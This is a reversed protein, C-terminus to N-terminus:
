SAPEFGADRLAQRGEDSNLTEVFRRVSPREARSSRLAFDYFEKAIAIFGLDSARSVPEITVGWDARQQAVAVAVANHSRPQNSYGAPHAGKLLGDILIRTGSGSNRNVMLCEPDALAAQLADELSKGEFRVDGKRFVLGQMRRWGPILTLDDGLFPSNYRGTRADLLHIPALDCEGRKVAQLGGLSGIAISRAAINDRVLLSLIRDLGTCHSGIVVLDPLQLNPSFLSVDGTKGAPWEDALPDIRVFGDAQTFSTIAGSGKGTPYAVLGDEGSVLSVMAFEARGLESPIQVAVRASASADSRPPLGALRRLVPVIMDQFTFIASTPFGPLVVIPKGDAVALCLPKGPKLAVGHAIVGPEGLRELIRYTVDGHGKSTGGSLVLMDHNRLGDRMAAELRVEDDPFAGLFHANAGNERITACVIAGNADHVQAPGATEGPQVLEDGTSLVAVSPKQIVRVRDLGCAAMMGIEPPGIRAGSRLFTEGRALDSGAFAIFRGPALSRAVEIRVGDLPETHEIMLVADAGRPIVGGTSIPTATGPSVDLRPAVGCALVEDNLTLAVPRTPGAEALDEARVAFGDVNARDFGPVDRPSIIDEALVRSLADGLSVIETPLDRPFLAAEFRSLAEERSLITLFQSQPAARSTKSTESM